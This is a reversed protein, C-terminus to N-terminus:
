YLSRRLSSAKMERLLARYFSGSISIAFNKHRKDNFVKGPKGYVGSDFYDKNTLGSINIALLSLKGNDKCFLPAGSSGDKSDCNHAIVGSDKSQKVECSQDLLKTHPRDFHFGPMLLRSHCTQRDSRVTFNKCEFAGPSNLRFISWDHEDKGVNEELEYGAAVLQMTQWHEIQRPNLNFRFQGQGRLEGKRWGKREVSQWYIAAHGASIVVDCNEGTLLGSVFEEGEIRIMGTQRIADVEGQENGVEARDDPGMVYALSSTLGASLTLATLLHRLQIHM